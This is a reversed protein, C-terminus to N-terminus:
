TRVTIYIYIYTHIYIGGTNSGFGIALLLDNSTQKVVTIYVSPAAM